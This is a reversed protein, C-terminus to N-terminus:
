TDKWFTILKSGYERQLHMTDLVASKFKYEIYFM